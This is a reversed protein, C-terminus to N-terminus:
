SWERTAGVLLGGSATTVAEHCVAVDCPSEWPWMPPTVVVISTKLQSLQCVMTKKPSQAGHVLSLHIHIILM